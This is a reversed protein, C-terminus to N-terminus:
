KAIFEPIRTLQHVPFSSSSDWRSKYLLLFLFPRNNNGNQQFLTQCRAQKGISCVALPSFTHFIFLFFPASFLSSVV